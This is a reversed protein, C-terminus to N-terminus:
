PGCLRRGDSSGAFPCPLRLKQRTYFCHAFEPGMVASWDPPQPDHRVASGDQHRPRVAPAGRGSKVKNAKVRGFAEFRELIVDDLQRYMSRTFQGNGVQTSYRPVSCKLAPPDTM